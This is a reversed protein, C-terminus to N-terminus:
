TDVEWGLLLNDILRTRGLWIAGAVVAERGELSGEIPEFTTKDFVAIYDYKISVGAKAAEKAQSEIYAKAQAIAEEATLTSSSTWGDKVLSLARYLTPAFPRETTTLYANRSSLALQDNPDRTTPIIHLNDSTPYFSLLDRLVTPSDLYIDESELAALLVLAFTSIKLLLAQQIDKQGFYAHDPLCANFLKTCITAVGRFFQAKRIWM